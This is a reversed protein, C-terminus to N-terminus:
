SIGGSSSSIKHREIMRMIGKRFEEAILLAPAWAFLFIWNQAPFPATGIITQFFPVYLIILIIVLESAIGLWVMKNSFLGAARISSRETRHALVNGIQTTVVAALAM